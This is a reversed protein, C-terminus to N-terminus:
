SKINNKEEFRDILAKKCDRHILRAGYLNYEEESHVLVESVDDFEKGFEFTSIYDKAINKRTELDLHKFVIVDDLRSLFEFRFRNQLKRLVTEEINHHSSSINLSFELSKDYGFNSTMVIITNRCDIKEGKASEFFGTDMIQLFLDLVENNAKEIEDLVILSKPHKKLERVFKSNENNSLHNGLLKNVSNYDQYSALDLYIINEKGCYVEGIIKSVETKGVGSPGLLFLTLIPKDQDYLKYDILNIARKIKLIAEHQGKIKNNIKKIIEEKSKIDNLNIKYFMELTKNVDKKTLKNSAIVCANDLTDIAKDPFYYSSLYNNTTDVIYDLLEDSITISYFKEYITKLSKLIIKTESVSTPPVKIVQFRRKLAKDKEFISQFEDETTAGIIQIEGRSLYPKIINSADIAGEAGGAKIINHIEDIFLICNGDEIVKKLIKKIKEEFEGRYKTGGVTSALDLEYIQKNKLSPIENNKLKRALEEVLATKGVGPEGVLVANPKNRRSLANILQIMENERGILPDANVQSLDHLDTVNELDSKKQLKQILLNCLFKTDIKTKKLIEYAMTNEGCFLAYGLSYISIKEEKYQRSINKSFDLLNKFELTYELYHPKNNNSPYLDKIKKYVSDFSIKEKILEKTIVNDGKLFALLLHESGVLAHGLQFAISECSAIVKQADISFKEM